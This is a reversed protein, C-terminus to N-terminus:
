NVKSDFIPLMAWMESVADRFIDMPVKMAVAVEMARVALTIYASFVEDQTVDHTATYEHIGSNGAKVLEHVVERRPQM